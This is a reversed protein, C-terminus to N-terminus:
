QADSKNRFQPYFLHNIYKFAIGKIAMNNAESGGSTYIIENSNVNLISALKIRAQEQLENIQNAQYYPSNANFYYTSYLKNLTKLVEDNVKTTAANDLYIM